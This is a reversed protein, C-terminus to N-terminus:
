EPRSYLSYFREINVEKDLEKGNLLHETYADAFFPAQSVGKSGLGNFMGINKHIPHFGLIPRRDRVTPRVGARHEIIKYSFKIFDDVKDTLVKKGIETPQDTTFEHEYTAGVRYENENLPIVFLQKNFIVEDTFNEIKMKLVEGKNPLLVTLWQFYPNNLSYIGDCFIIQKASIQKYEVREQNKKILSYDLTEEFYNGKELLHNKFVSLFEPINLHGSYNTEFGGYSQHIFENYTHNPITKKIFNEGDHQSLWVNGEEITAFPKYIPKPFLITCEFEEEFTKYFREMFPFVLEAKWAKKMYKGTIPNYLGAAVLSASEQKTENIFVVKAGKKMLTYGLVTGALGQGVIIFDTHMNRNFLSYIYTIENLCVLNIAEEKCLRRYHVIKTGHNGDGYKCEVGKL